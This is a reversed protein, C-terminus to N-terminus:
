LLKQLIVGHAFLTAWTVVSSLPLASLRPRCLQPLGELWTVVATSVELLASPGASGLIPLQSLKPLVVSAPAADGQGHRLGRVEPPGQVPISGHLSVPLPSRLAWCRLWCRAVRPRPASKGPRGAGGPALRFLRWPSPSCFGGGRAGLRAPLWRGPRAAFPLAPVRPAAGRLARLPRQAAAGGCM